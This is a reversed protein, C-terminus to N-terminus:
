IGNLVIINYLHLIEVKITKIAAENLLKLQRKLELENEKSSIGGEVTTSNCLLCWSFLFAASTKSTM